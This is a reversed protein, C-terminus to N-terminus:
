RDMDCMHSGVSHSVRSRQARQERLISSARALPPTPISHAQLFARCAIYFRHEGLRIYTPPDAPYPLM